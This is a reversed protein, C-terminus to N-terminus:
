GKEKQENREKESAISKTSKKNNCVYTHKEGPSAEVSTRYGEACAM